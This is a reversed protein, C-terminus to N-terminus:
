YSNWISVCGGPRAFGNIAVLQGAKLNLKGGTPAFVFIGGTEDQVFTDRVSPDSYTVTGAIQASIVVRNGGVYADDTRERKSLVLMWYAGWLVGLVIFIVAILMLIKTRKGNSPAPAAPEVMANM